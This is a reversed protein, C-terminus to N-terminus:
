SFRIAEDTKHGVLRSRKNEAAIEDKLDQDRRPHVDILPIYGLQRSVNLIHPVDYASDMFDYIHTVRESNMKALPIAVQSAHTSASTLVASISIGADAV